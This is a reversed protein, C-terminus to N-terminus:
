LRTKFGRLAAAWVACGVIAMMFCQRGFYGIDSGKLILNRVLYSYHSLPNVYSIYQLIKPMNETPFIAGSLMLMLFAVIVVGLLAQQQTKTYNSLLVAIGTAPICFVVFGLMFLTVSGVFPLKYAWLGIILISLMVVFSVAVYPLVKGAIIDYKSVPASILTEITGTEKEKTISITILILLSLFVLIAILSPVMFWKTNLEPNFLIRLNFGIQSAPMAYGMEKVASLTVGQLYAEISQAKLINMSDILIQIQGDGRALARTLGGSPAVIAVDAVGSQVATVADLKTNPIRVFWGSGIAHNYVKEMIIDGPAADVALRLNKAELTIAGSYIVLQVAPMILVASLLVKDRTLAIIEKKFFGWFRKM